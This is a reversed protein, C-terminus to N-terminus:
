AFLGSKNKKKNSVKPDTVATYLTSYADIITNTVRSRADLRLKSSVIRILCTLLEAIKLEFKYRDVIPMSLSGFDLLSADFSRLCSKIAMNEM